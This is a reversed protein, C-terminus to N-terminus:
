DGSKSTIICILSRFLWGIGILIYLAFSPLNDFVLQIKNLHRLLVGGESNVAHAGPVEVHLLLVHDLAQVALFRLDQQRALEDLHDELDVVDPRRGVHLHPGLVHKDDLLEGQHLPSQAIFISM